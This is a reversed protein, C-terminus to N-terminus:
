PMLEWKTHIDYFLKEGQLTLPSEINNAFLLGTGLGQPMKVDKKYAWQAIANLGINSELASTAWWGVSHENALKVWEDSSYFGGILGPKLILYQPKIANILQYKKEYSAIGILEEDLAIPLPPNACLAAMQEWQGAKIPQEISHVDLKALDNLVEQVNESHFAGNADVRITLETAKFRRRMEAILERETEWSLSGIKLKVCSFGADLKQAIQSRMFGADGMWILGNTPIGANGSTFASPFLIHKGGNNLDALATELGFRIAPFSELRDDFDFTGNNIEGCVQKLKEEFDPRNDISLDNLISCEGVGTHNENSLFLFWSNKDTYVGRSTGVPRIFKLSYKRFNAKIHM